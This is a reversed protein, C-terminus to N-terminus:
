SGCFATGGFDTDVGSIDTPFVPDLRHHIHALILMNGDADPHVAAAQILFQQFQVPMGCRISQNLTGELEQFQQFLIAKIIGAYGHLGGGYGSHYSRCSEEAAATVIGDM